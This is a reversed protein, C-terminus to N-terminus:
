NSPTRIGVASQQLYNFINLWFNQWIKRERDAPYEKLIRESSDYYLQHEAPRQVSFLCFRQIIDLPMFVDDYFPYREYLVALLQIYKQASIAHQPSRSYFYDQIPLVSFGSYGNVLMANSILNQVDAANQEHVYWLFPVRLGYEALALVSEKDKGTLISQPNDLPVEYYLKFSRHFLFEKESESLMPFTGLLTFLVRCNQPSYAKCSEWFTKINDWHKAPLEQFHLQLSVTNNENFLHRFAQAAVDAGGNELAKVDLDIYFPIANNSPKTEM